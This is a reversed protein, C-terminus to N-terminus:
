QQKLLTSFRDTAFQLIADADPDIGRDQLVDTIGRRWAQGHTADLQADAIKPGPKIREFAASLYAAIAADTPMSVWWPDPSLVIYSLFGTISATRTKRFDVTMGDTRLGAGVFPSSKGVGAATAPAVRQNWRRIWEDILVSENSAPDVGWREAAASGFDLISNLSM